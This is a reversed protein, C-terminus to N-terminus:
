GLIKALTACGSLKPILHELAERAGWRRRFGHSRQGDVIGGHPQAQQLFVRGMWCCQCDSGVKIGLDTGVLPGQM